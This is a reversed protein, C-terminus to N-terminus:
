NTLKNIIKECDYVFSEFRRKDFKILRAVCEKNPPQAYPGQIYIRVNNEKTIKLGLSGNNDFETDYYDDYDSGWSEVPRITLSKWARLSEERLTKYFSIFDAPSFIYTQTIAKESIYHYPKKRIIHSGKDTESEDYSCLLFLASRRSQIHLHNQISDSITIQNKSM